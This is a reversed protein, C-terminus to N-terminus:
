KLLLINIVISIILMINSFLFMTKINNTSFCKIKNFNIHSFINILDNKSKINSCCGPSDSLFHQAYPFCAVKIPKDYFLNEFWNNKVINVNTMDIDLAKKFEDVNFILSFLGPDDNSKTTGYAISLNGDIWLKQDLNKFKSDSIYADFILSRSNDNTMDVFIHGTYDTTVVCSKVNPDQLINKPDYTITNTDYDIIIWSTMNTDLNKAIIYCEVRSGIFGSTHANICGFICMYKPEDDVFIKSKELVFNDPLFSKAFEIDKIEYFLFTSYPEVVFGMYPTKKGTSSLMKTLICKPVFKNFYQIFHLTGVEVPNILKEVGKIFSEKDM